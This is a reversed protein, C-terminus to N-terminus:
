QLSASSPCACDSHGSESTPRQNRTIIAFRQLKEATVPGQLGEARSLYEFIRAGRLEPYTEELGESIRRLYVASPAGIPYEKHSTSFSMIPHGDGNDGVYIVQNYLPDPLVQDLTFGRKNGISEELRSLLLDKLGEKKVNNEQLVVDNFQQLSILYMRGFVSSDTRPRIFAAAGGWRDLTRREDAFYLEFGSIRIQKSALPDSNDRCGPNPESAGAPTGGKIYCM